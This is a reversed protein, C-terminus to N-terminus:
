KDKFLDSNVWGQDQYGPQEKPRAYNVVEVQYWNGNVSLVKVVSDKPVLGVKPNKVSPAGRLNVDTTAVLERGVPSGGPATPAVSQQPERRFYYHTALLMGSFALILLAAVLARM